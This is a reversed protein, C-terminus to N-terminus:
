PLEPYTIVNGETKVINVRPEDVDDGFVAVNLPMDSQNIITVNASTNDGSSMREKSIITLDLTDGCILPAGENFNESPFVENGLKYNVRYNNNSGTVTITIDETGVNESSLSTTGTPDGKQGVAMTRMDSGVQNMIIYLDYDVKMKDRYSADASMTQFTGSIFINDTGVPVEHINIDEVPRDEGTIAYMSVQMTGSVTDTGSAYSFSINNITIKRGYQRLYLLVTKLNEYTCEFSLNLQTRIGKYDTMYVPQGAASPNTSTINGFTYVDENQALGMQNLWVGTHKEVLSLFIIIQEQRLNTNYSDIINQYALRNAETDAQYQARNNSKASLDAYRDSLQQEEVEYTENAASIKDFLLYAGGLIAAILLLLILKKDRSSVNIKM